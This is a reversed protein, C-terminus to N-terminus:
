EGAGAKGGGVEWKGSGGDAMEAGGVGRRMGSAASRGGKGRMGGRGGARRGIVQARGSRCAAQWAEHVVHDRCAAMGRGSVRVVGPRGWGVGAGARGTCAGCRAGGVAAHVEEKGPSAPTGIGPGIAHGRQKLRHADGGEAGAGAALGFLDNSRGGNVNRDDIEAQGDVTHIVAILAASADKIQELTELRGHRRHDDARVPRRAVHGALHGGREPKVGERDDVPAAGVDFEHEFDELAGHVAEVVAAPRSM